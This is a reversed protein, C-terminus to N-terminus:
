EPVVVPALSEGDQVVASLSSSSSILSGQEPFTDIKPNQVLWGFKEEVTVANKGTSKASLEIRIPEFGEPLQMEGAFNQFYKFRLKINENSLKDNLDKLPKTVQVGNQRGVVNVNLYGTLLQHRTALQQLVLKYQYRRSIDTALVNLSGITLGRKNATPSMLGKYFSIDEQLEAIQAKLDIVEVRVDESAHRDVESGLQLNAVQQRYESAERKSDVLEIRLKNREFIAQEQIAVGKEHGFFYSGASAGLALCLLLFRLTWRFVPRYSVVELEYQESGKVASM